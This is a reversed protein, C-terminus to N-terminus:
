RLHSWSKGSLAAQLTSGNVEFHQGLRAYTWGQNERLQRAQRVQDATLKAKHSAEGRKIQGRNCADRSNQKKTGAYLHRVNCCPPNDCKHLAMLEGLGEGRELMLAMRHALFRIGCVTM